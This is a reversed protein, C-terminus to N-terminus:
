IWSLVSTCNAACRAHTLAPVCAGQRQQIFIMLPAGIQAAMACAMYQAPLSKYILYKKYWPTTAMVYRVACRQQGHRGLCVVHEHGLCVVHEHSLCVVHEHGLCGSKYRKM